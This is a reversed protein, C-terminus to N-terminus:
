NPIAMMKEKSAAILMTDDVYTLNTINKGVVSIGGNWEDLVNIMIYKNEMSTSSTQLSSADRVVTEASKLPFCTNTRLELKNNYM